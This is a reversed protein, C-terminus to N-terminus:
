WIGWASRICTIVNGEADFLISGLEEPLDDELYNEMSNNRYLRHKSFIYQKSFSYVSAKATDFSDYYGRNTYVEEEPEYVELGYVADSNKNDMVAHFQVLQGRIKNELVRKLREDKTKNAVQMLSAHIMGMPYATRLIM